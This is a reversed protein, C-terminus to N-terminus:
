KKNQFLELAKLYKMAVSKTQAELFGNLEPHNKDVWHVLVERNKVFRSIDFVEYKVREVRTIKNNDFQIIENWVMPEEHLFFLRKDIKSIKAKVMESDQEIEIIKYTPEFIADWELWNIYGKKSFREEYNDESERIVISDGLLTLMSSTDSSDLFKYYRKALELKDVEKESTKCGLLTVTVVLLLIIKNM